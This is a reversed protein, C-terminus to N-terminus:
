RTYCKHLMKFVVTLSRIGLIICLIMLLLCLFLNRYIVYLSLLCSNLVIKKVILKLLREYVLFRQFQATESLIAPITFNNVQKSPSPYIFYLLTHKYVIQLSGFKSLFLLLLLILLILLLLLGM